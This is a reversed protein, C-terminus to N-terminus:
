RWRDRDATENEKRSKEEATERGKDRKMVTKIQDGETSKVTVEM